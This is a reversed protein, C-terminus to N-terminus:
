KFIRHELGSKALIFLLLIKFTGLTYKISNKLSAGRKKGTYSTEVPVEAIKFNKFAAQAILEFSFLYDNSNDQFNINELLKRTYVRFGQHFDHIDIGSIARDLMNLLFIALFKWPYMGSKLPPYGKAFRNGMILGAGNEVKKLALPISFPKYEGDPHLDIIIDAGNKLAAILALKINGGYGLRKPNRVSKIGLKKALEFTKDSSHDDFLLVEVALEKPFESYFNELTNEANLAIFIAIIKPKKGM